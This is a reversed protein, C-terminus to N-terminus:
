FVVVSKLGLPTMRLVTGYLENDSLNETYDNYRIYDDLEKDLSIMKNDPVRIVVDVKQDRYLESTHLFISAPLILLSDKQTVPYQFSEARSKSEERSGGRASKFLSVSYVTDTSREITIEINNFVVTDDYIVFDDWEDWKYEKGSSYNHQMNLEHSNDMQVYIIESTPQMLNVKESSRGEYKFDQGLRVGVVIVSTLCVIWLVLLTWDVAKFNGKVKLLYKIGKFILAFLPIAVLALASGILLMSQRRNEFIHNNVFNLQAGANGAETFLAVGIAVLAVLCVIVIAFVFLKIIFNAFPKITELISEIVSGVSNRTREVNEKSFTQKVEEGFEDLRTKMQATESKISREINSINVREGRMELKESRTKATPVIVWLIIYLLIGTGFVLLSVVFALRLWLPDINFYAAFGSCVGGLVRNDADRYFRRATSQASSTKVYDDDSDFEEPKGMIAIIKEVHHMMVAGNQGVEDMLLESIRLEIDSIIEDGGNTSAYKKKISSLYADMKQYASEDIQFVTGGINVNLLKNM